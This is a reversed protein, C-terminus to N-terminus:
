PPPVVPGSGFLPTPFVPLRHGWGPAPAPIIPSSDLPLQTPDMESGLCGPPLILHISALPAVLLHTIRVQVASLLQDMCACASARPSGRSSMGWRILYGMGPLMRQEREETPPHPREM